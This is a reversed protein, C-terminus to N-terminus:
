RFRGGGPAARCYTSRRARGTRSSAAVRAAVTSRGAAGRIAQPLGGAIRGGASASGAAVPTAPEPWWREWQGVRAVHRSALLAVCWTLGVGSGDLKPPLPPASPLGAALQSARAPSRASSRSPPSVCGFRSSARRPRTTRRDAHGAPIRRQMRAERRSLQALRRWAGAKSTPAAAIPPAASARICWRPSGVDLRLRRQTRGARPLARAWGCTRSSLNRCTRATRGRPALALYARRRATHAPAANSGSDLDSLSTRYTSPCWPTSLHSLMFTARPRSPTWGCNAHCRRDVDGDERAAKPVDTM